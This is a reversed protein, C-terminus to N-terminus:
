LQKKDLYSYLDTTFILPQPQSISNKERMLKTLEKFKSKQVTEKQLDRIRFIDLGHVSRIYNDRIADPDKIQSDHYDPDLEVVLNLTPFYYDCIYYLRKQRDLRYCNQIPIPFEKYVILPDFYGVNILADFIRAQQSRFRLQKKRTFKKVSTSSPYIISKFNVLKGSNSVLYVPYPQFPIDLFYFSEKYNIKKAM